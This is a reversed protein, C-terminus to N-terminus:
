SSSMLSQRLIYIRCINYPGRGIRNNDVCILIKFVISVQKLLIGALFHRNIFDESLKLKAPDTFQLFLYIRSHEFVNLNFLVNSYLNKKGEDCDKALKIAQLPLNFPVFHEHSCITQLFTFKFDFLAKPDCAKFKEIYKKIQRFVFGRDMFSLCSQFLQFLSNRYKLTM